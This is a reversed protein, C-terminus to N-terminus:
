RDSIFWNLTIISLYKKIKNIKKYNYQRIGHNLYIFLSFTYPFLHISKVKKDKLSHENLREFFVLDRMIHEVTSITLVLDFSYKSFDIIEADDKFFAVNEKEIWNDSKSVDVGTYKTYKNKLIESYIGTGTGLELIKQNNQLTEELFFDQALRM